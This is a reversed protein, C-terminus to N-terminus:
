EVVTNTAINQESFMIELVKGISKMRRERAM